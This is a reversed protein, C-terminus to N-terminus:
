RVSLQITGINTSQLATVQVDVVITDRYTIDLPIITLDYIGAPMASLLFSGALPSCFTSVTDEGVLTMVVSQASGPLVTGSITGSIANAAVRIVPQLRYQGNGTQM